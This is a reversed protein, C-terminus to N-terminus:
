CISRYLNKGHVLRSLTRISGAVALSTRGLRYLSARAAIIRWRQNRPLIHSPILLQFSRSIARAQLMLYLLYKRKEGELCDRVICHIELTDVKAVPRAGRDALAQNDCECSRRYAKLPAFHFVRCSQRGHWCAEEVVKASAFARPLYWSLTLAQLCCWVLIAGRWLCSWCEPKKVSLKSNFRVLFDVLDKFSGGESPQKRRRELWEAMLTSSWDTSAYKFARELCEPVLYSQADVLQKKMDDDSLLLEVFGCTMRCARLKGEEAMLEVIQQGPDQIRWDLDDEDPEAMSYRPLLARWLTRRVSDSSESACAVIWPSLVFRDGNNEVLCRLLSRCALDHRAAAQPGARGASTACMRVLADAVPYKASSVSEGAKSMKELMPPLLLDMFEPRKFLFGALVEDLLTPYSCPYYAALLTTIEQRFAPAFGARGCWNAVHNGVVQLLVARSMHVDVRDVLGQPVLKAADVGFRLLDVEAAALEDARRASRRKRKLSRGGSPEARGAPFFWDLLSRAALPSADGNAGNKSGSDGNAAAQRREQSFSQIVPPLEDRFLSAPTQTPTPPPIPTPTPPPADATLSSISIPAWPEADHPDVKVRKSRSQAESQAESDDDVGAMLSAMKMKSSRPARSASASPNPASAPSESQAYMSAISTPPPPRARPRSRRRLADDDDARAMRESTRGLPTKQYQRQATYGM